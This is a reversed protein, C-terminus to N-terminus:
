RGYDGTTAGYRTAAVLLATCMAGGVGLIGYTYAMTGGGGTSAVVLAGLFTIGAGIMTLTGSVVAAVIALACKHRADM